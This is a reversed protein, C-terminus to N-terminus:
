GNDRRWPEEAPTKVEIWTSDELAEMAHDANVPHLVADGPALLFTENGVIARVRGHLVYIYSEHSHKHLPTTSGKALQVQVLLANKGHLLKKASIAGRVPLGEVTRIQFNFVETDRGILSM